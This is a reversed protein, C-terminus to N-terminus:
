KIFSVTYNHNGSTLTLFYRGNPLSQVPLTLAIPGTAQEGHDKTEIKRGLTDYLSTTLWGSQQLYGRLYIKERAPNPFLQWEVEKLDSFVNATALQDECIRAGIDPKAVPFFGIDAGAQFVPSNEEFVLSQEGTQKLLPDISRNSPHSFLAIRIDEPLFGLLNNTIQAELSQQELNTLQVEANANGWLVSNVIQLYFTSDADPAVDMGYGSTFPPSDNDSPENLAIISHLIKLNSRTAYQEARIATGKNGTILSNVLILDSILSASEGDTFNLIASARHARNGSLHCNALLLQAKALYGTYQIAGSSGGQITFGDLILAASNGSAILLNFIAGQRGGELVSPYRCHDQETFDENWGGQLMLRPPNASQQSQYNLFYNGQPVKLVTGREANQIAEALDQGAQLQVFKPQNKDQPDSGLYYEYLNVIGDEDPDAWADKPDNVNLGRHFEWGNPMADQDSDWDELQANLLTPMLIGTLVLLLNVLSGFNLLGLGTLPSAILRKLTDTKVKKLTHDMPLKSPLIDSPFTILFYFNGM